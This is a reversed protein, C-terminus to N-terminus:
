SKPSSIWASFSGLRGHEVDKDKDIVCDKDAQNLFLEAVIAIVTFVVDGVKDDDDEDQPISPTPMTSCSKLLPPGCLYPNGEYSSPPSVASANSIFTSGTATSAM